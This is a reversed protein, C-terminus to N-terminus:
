LHYIFVLKVKDLTQVHRHYVYRSEPPHIVHGKTNRKNCSSPAVPMEKPDTSNKTLNKHSLCPPLRLSQIKTRRALFATTFYRSLHVDHTISWLM